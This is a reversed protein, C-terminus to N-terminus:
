RGNQRALDLAAPAKMQELARQVRAGESTPAQAIVAMRQRLGRLMEDAKRLQRHGIKARIQFDMIQIEEVSSECVALWQEAAVEAAQWAMTKLHVKVLWERGDNRFRLSAKECAVANRYRAIAHGWQHERRDLHGLELIARVHLDDAPLTAELVEEFAGRAEGSEQLARHIEGRRFAAVACEERVAPWWHPVAQYYAIADHLLQLRRPGKRGRAAEQAKAARKLQDQVSAEQAIIQKGISPPPTLAGVKEQAFGSAAGVCFVTIFLVGSVWRNM